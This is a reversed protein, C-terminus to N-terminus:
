LRYFFRNSHIVQKRLMFMTIIAIDWKACNTVAARLQMRSQVSEGYDGDKM